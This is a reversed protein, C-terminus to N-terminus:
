KLKRRNIFSYMGLALMCGVCVGLSDILVDLIQGSRGPVFLQHFEDTAAYLVSAIIATFFRRRGSVGYSALLGYWLFGLVAYETAHACKRVPLAMKEILDQQRDVSWTDFDRVVFRVISSSFGSSTGTSNGADQASFAFIVLMWVLTLSTFIVRMIKM